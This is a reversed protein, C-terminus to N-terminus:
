VALEVTYTVARHHVTFGAREYVGVAGTPNAADVALTALPVGARAARRLVESLMAAALGRRRWPRRVGVHSVYLRGPEADRNALVYGAIQDGALAVLSLEPRFLEMGVTLEVWRDFEARQYGWHDAFADVHAEYVSKDMTSEYEVLRFGDPVPLAPAQATVAEMEFWYRAPALGFRRYLRQSGEDAAMADAHVEWRADPAMAGRIAGARALQWGLLERGLGRGQWAPHVAGWLDVRHGGPPPTPVLALGILEGDPALVVRTDDAVDRIAAAVFAEVLEPTVAAYGGAAEEVMGSVTAVAPADSAQYPRTTLADM